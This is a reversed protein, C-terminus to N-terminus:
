NIEIITWSTVKKLSHLYGCQNNNRISMHTGGPPYEPCVMMKSSQWSRNPIDSLLSHIERPLLYVTISIQYIIILNRCLQENFTYIEFPPCSLTSNVVCWQWVCLGALGAWGLGYLLTEHDYYISQLNITNFLKNM